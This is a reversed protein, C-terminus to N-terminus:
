CNRGQKRLCRGRSVIALESFNQLVDAEDSSTSQLRASKYKNCYLLLTAHDIDYKRGVARVSLQGELVEKVALLMVDPPTEGRTTKRKRSRIM